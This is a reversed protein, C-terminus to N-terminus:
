YKNEIHVGRKELWTLLSYLFIKYVFYACIWLFTSIVFSWIDAWDMRLFGNHKGYVNVWSIVHLSILLYYVNTKIKM